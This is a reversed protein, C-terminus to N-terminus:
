RYDFRPNNAAFAARGPTLERHAIRYFIIFHRNTIFSFNFVFFFFLTIYVVVITAVIFRLLSNILTGLGYIDVFQYHM